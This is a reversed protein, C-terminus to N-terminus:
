RTPYSFFRHSIIAFGSMLLWSIALYLFTVFFFAYKRFLSGRWLM